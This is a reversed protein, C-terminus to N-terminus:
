RLLELHADRTSASPIAGLRERLTARCREYAGLAKGLNGAAAHARM